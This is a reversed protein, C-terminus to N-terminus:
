HLCVYVIHRISRFQLWRNHGPQYLNPTIDNTANPTRLRTFKKTARNTLNGLTQKHASPKKSETENGCIAAACVCIVLVADMVVGALTVLVLVAVDQTAPVQVTESESVTVALTGCTELDNVGLTILAPPVDNSTMVNVFECLNTDAVNVDANV